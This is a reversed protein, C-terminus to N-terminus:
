GNPDMQPGEEGTARLGNPDMQPGEDGTARLGNPDMQPGAAAAATPMALLGTVAVLLVLITLFNRPIM